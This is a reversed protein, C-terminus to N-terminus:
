QGVGREPRTVACNLATEALERSQQDNSQRSIYAIAKRYNEAEENLTALMRLGEAIARYERAICEPMESGIWAEYKEALKIMEEPSM